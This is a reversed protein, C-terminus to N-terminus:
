RDWLSERELRMAEKLHADCKAQYAAKAVPDGNGLIVQFLRGMAEHTVPAVVVIPRSESLTEELRTYLGDNIDREKAIARLPKIIERWNDGPKALALRRYHGMLTAINM